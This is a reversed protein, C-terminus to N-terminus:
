SPPTLQIGFRAYLRVFFSSVLQEANAQTLEFGGFRYVHYGDLKLARDAAVMESYKRPSATDGEAYHQQGDIEIVIRVDSPLLLLFDM